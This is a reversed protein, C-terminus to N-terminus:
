EIAESSKRKAMLSVLGAGIALGVGHAWYAFGGSLVGGAAALQGIGYFGQQVFWWVLYFFAPLEVPVFVIALPLITEVKAKPFKFLYAGLIGAIAGNAGISPVKLSPDVLIQVAAALIGCIFYFLLFRWHGLVDEVRKGFVWLFLLNGLLQGFSGHLFMASVVSPLGIGILAFGAAPNKESIAAIAMDRLRAPVVGWTQLFDSLEGAAELKLQMLFLAIAFGVLLGTVLPKCRRDINDAIPVM